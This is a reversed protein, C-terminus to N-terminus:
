KLTSFTNLSEMISTVNELQKQYKTFNPATQYNTVAEENIVIFNKNGVGNEASFHKGAVMDIEMNKAYDEDVLFYGLNTWDPDSLNKKFGDGYSTGSAPIHSASAVNKVNPYKLLETKLAQASTNNLRVLMNKEMTFGYDKSIFLELQNYMIIVTLIFILSITFQSVLLFKRLGM